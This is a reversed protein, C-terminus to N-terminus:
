VPLAYPLELRQHFTLIQHIDYPHTAGRTLDNRIVQFGHEIGAADDIDADVRYCLPEADSCFFTLQLNGYHDFTKYSGSNAFGVDPKHKGGPVERFTGGAVANKVADRFDLAVNCFVRDGRVRYLDTVWDWATADGLATHTMKTHLNLLGARQIVDLSAFLKEGPSLARPLSRRRPPEAQLTSRELVTRLSDPLGAFEPFDPTEVADPDVPCYITAAASTKGTPVSVFQQVARYRAPRVRVRYPQGPVVDDLRVRKKGSVGRAHLLLDQSQVGRVDLDIDDNLPQRAADCFELTLTAM